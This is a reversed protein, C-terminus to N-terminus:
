LIYDLQSGKHKSKSILQYGEIHNKFQPFHYACM